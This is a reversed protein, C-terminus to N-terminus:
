WPSGKRCTWCLPLSPLRTSHLHTSYSPSVDSRSLGDAERCESVETNNGFGRTGQTPPLRSVRDSLSPDFPPHPVDEVSTSRPKDNPRSTARPFSPAFPMRLLSSSSPDPQLQHRLTESRLRSRVAPTKRGLDSSKQFWCGFGWMDLLMSRVAGSKGVSCAWFGMSLGRLFEGSDRNMGEYGMERMRRSRILPNSGEGGAGVFARLLGWVDGQAISRKYGPDELLIGLTHVVASSSAVLSAYTSSEFANAAHWQVSEVWRPTHGAPTAYPRGSSSPKGQTLPHVLTSSSPLAADSIPLYRSVFRVEHQHSAM